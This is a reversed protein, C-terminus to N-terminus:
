FNNEIDVPINFNGITSLGGGFGFFDPVEFFPHNLRQAKQMEATVRAWITQLTGIADQEEAAAIGPDIRKMLVSMAKKVIAENGSDDWKSFITIDDPNIIAPHQINGWVILNNTNNGTYSPYVFYQNGWNAFFHNAPNPALTPSISSDAYDILDQYAKPFYKVGDIYLRAISNSLFDSPYDYYDYKLGQTNARASSQRAKQLPPWFFLSGAWLTADQIVSTIRTSPILGSNNAALVRQQLESTMDNLTQM